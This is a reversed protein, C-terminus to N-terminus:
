TSCGFCAWIPTNKMNTAEVVVGEVASCWSCARTPTNETNPPKRVGVRTNLTIRVEGRVGFLWFTDM